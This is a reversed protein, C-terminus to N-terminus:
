SKIKEGFLLSRIEKLMKAVPSGDKGASKSIRLILIALTILLIGIVDANVILWADGFSPQLRLSSYSYIATVYVLLNMVRIQLKWFSVPEEHEIYKLYEWVSWLFFIGAYVLATYAFHKGFMIITLLYLPLLVVTVIFRLSGRIPKRQISKHYGFWSLLLNIYGLTVVSMSFGSPLQVGKTWAVVTEAVAAAIVVAFMPDIFQGTSPDIDSSAM